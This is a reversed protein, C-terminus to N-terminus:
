RQCTTVTGSLLYSGGVFPQVQKSLILNEDNVEWFQKWFKLIKVKKGIPQIFMDEMEGNFKEGGETRGGSEPSFDQLLRM